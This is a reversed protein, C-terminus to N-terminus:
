GNSIKLQSFHRRVWWVIGAIILGAIVIDFKEFYIKLSPWNEGLALGIYTLALSWPLSGLVTYFSFKKFNMKAIGAPFSILTRVIPLLRSFFVTAQGYRKFWSDALNLDRGSILIYKGYKEILPRGGAYGIWYAAMSGLLNGAAGCLVTLWFNFEGTFVLFGSFPMIVESPILIGASELAMLMAVGFYGTSSIIKIILSALGSLIFNIM